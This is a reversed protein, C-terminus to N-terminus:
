PTPRSPANNLIDELMPDVGASVTDEILHQAYFRNVNWAVYALIYCAREKVDFPAKSLIVAKAIKAFPDNDEWTKCVQVMNQGILDVVHEARSDNSAAFKAVTDKFGETSLINSCLEEGPMDLIWDAIEEDFVKRNVKQLLTNIRNKDKLIDLKKNIATLLEGADQYRNNPDSTTAKEVVAKLYHNNHMPHGDLVFNILRGLAFVDSRKDGDRLSDLQEPSCYYWQGFNKTSTTRYSSPTNLNKGLGFDAIKWAGRLIFINTPSLDRHIYGRAHIDAMTAVVQKIIAIKEQESITETMFKALTKEGAEMTYSCTGEDFEYVQLVGPVGSLEKMIEFERKFRNRSGADSAANPMLKKLIRGTSVQKFAQAFGGEGILVLDSNVEVLKIDGDLGVLELSDRRLEQNFIQRTNRVRERATIEDCEWSSMMYEYGLVVSFFDDIRGDSALNTIKEAAYRWRTPASSYQYVESFGFYNDFFAVIQPGSIYQYQEKEDGVFIKSITELTRNSISNM